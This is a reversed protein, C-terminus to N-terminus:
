VLLAAAGVIGFAAKILDGGFSVASNGTPSTAPGSTTTSAGSNSGSRTAAGPATSVAGGQVSIIGGFTNSPTTNTKASSAAKKFAALTNGSSPPNIVGVMGLQCHGLQACYFYQPDSTTVIISFTESSSGAFGSFFGNTSPNCPNSFGAQTVTHNGGNFVFNITDGMDATITDPSFVLGGAGVSVTHTAQSMPSSTTAAPAVTAQASSSSGGGGYDYQAFALPALNAIAFLFKM